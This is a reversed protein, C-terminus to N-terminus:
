LKWKFSVKIPEQVHFERHICTGGHPFITLLLTSLSFAMCHFTFLRFKLTIIADLSINHYENIVDWESGPMVVAYFQGFLMLFQSPSIFRFRNQCRVLACEILCGLKHTVTNFYWLKVMKNFNLEWKLSTCYKPNRTSYLQLPKTFSWLWNRQLELVKCAKRYPLHIFIFEWSDCIRYARFPHISSAFWEFPLRSHFLSLLWFRM